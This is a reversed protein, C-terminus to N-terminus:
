TGLLGIWALIPTLAVTALGAVAASKEATSWNRWDALLDRRALALARRRSQGERDM